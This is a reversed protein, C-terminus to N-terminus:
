QNASKTQLAGWAIESRPQTLHQLHMPNDHGESELMSLRCVEVYEADEERNRRRACPEPVTAEGTSRGILVQAGAQLCAHKTLRNRTNVCRHNKVRAVRWTASLQTTPEYDQSVCTNSGSVTGYIKVLNREEHPAGTMKTCRSRKNM